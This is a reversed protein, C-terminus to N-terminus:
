RGAVDLYIEELRRAHEPWSFAAARAIGAARRAEWRAPSRFREEILRLVTTRWEAVDAVGCFTAASGGVERLAPLDSAVVPTGCAMAEAVPLGFGEADSPQLVLAARRYVAALVPRELFPLVLVADDLGLRAALEEQQDTLPGGVRVLRVRPEVARVAGVVHLLVDIRKRRITSGVHLLDIVERSEGLLRSAAADADPDSGPSCSPHCGAPVVMLRSAPVLARALLADRTAISDCIVRAAARMGALTREALLRLVLAKPGGHNEWLPRLIDVDHCTVVVPRGLLNPVLSAYSHDVIHFLDFEAVRRRLHRPYDWLRNLLRDGNLAMGSRQWKPARTFRRVMPPRIQVAAVARRRSPELHALLMEAFLDMSPWGEEVLDAVIGIRVSRQADERRAAGGPISAAQTHLGEFRSM